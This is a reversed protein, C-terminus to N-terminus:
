WRSAVLQFIGLNNILFVLVPALLLGLALLAITRAAALRRVRGREFPTLADPILAVVPAGLYYRVDSPEHVVFMRPAEVIAVVFLGAILALAVAILRLKGRDPGAPFRAEVPSDVIQFLGPDLGAAATSMRELDSQQKLLASYRDRLRDKDTEAAINAIPTDAAAARQIQVGGSRGGGSTSVLKSKREIERKTVELETEMRSYERQMTRLERAEPSNLPVGDKGAAANLQALQHDVETLQTRTQIMKPNKDTYQPGYEKVQAELEAKKVLLVGYSSGSRADTPATRAIKEQEGIQRKQEELQRELAFQKDNLAELSSTAAVREARSLNADETGRSRQRQRMAAAANQQGLQDLRTEIDALQSEVQKKRDAMQREVAQNMSGFNSVLDAAVEQAVLPDPNRYTISLTEPNDGRYKTDIKIDKRMHNVAVEMAGSAVERPYLDHRGILPELFARGNIRETITAVRSAVAQRDDEKGAVVVSASSQYVDPIGHIVLFTSILVAGMVVLFLLKRRFLMQFYEPLTRPRFNSM